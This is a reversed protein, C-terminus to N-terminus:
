RYKKAAAVFADYDEKFKPNASTVKPVVAAVAELYKKTDEAALHINEGGNKVWAEGLRKNDELGRTTFLPEHRRAEERVIAELEPGLSKMWRRNVLGAAVVFSGPVYTATKAVDYYKFPIFVAHIATAGDIAKNQLAPLVEGLPMSLPSAGLSRLPENHLATGGATRIKMGKLDAITRIPKTSVIMLDGNLYTVLPEVGKSEGFTALRARIEPDNFVKQGHEIGDFLGATDLIQFRPELGVFFGIAPFTAEITGMSVGDVTAPIQGLQNSPYIEVKVKGKTRDEVSAKFAKMWEHSVDNVTPLSLKMTFQQASAAGAVGVVLGAAMLTRSFVNVM